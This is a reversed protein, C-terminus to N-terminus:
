AKSARGETTRLDPLREVVQKVIEIVSDDSAFCLPRLSNIVRLEICVDNNDLARTGGNKGYNSNSDDYADVLTQMVVRAVRQNLGFAPRNQISQFEQESARAALDPGYTLIRHM